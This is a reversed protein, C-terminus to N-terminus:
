INGFEKGEYEPLYYMAWLCSYDGNPFCGNAFLTNAFPANLFVRNESNLVESTPNFENEVYDILTVKDYILEIWGRFNLVHSVLCKLIGQKSVGQKCIAM